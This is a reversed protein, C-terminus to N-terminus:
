SLLLEESLMRWDGLKSYDAMKILTRISIERMAQYNDWCWQVMETATQADVGAKAMMNTSTAIQQVRVMIEVRRHIALDLYTSRSILAQFHPAFKSNGNIMEDFNYNTIFAISGKFEFTNPIGNDELWKASSGYTIRRADSTDLAGKLLNLSVEDAFVDDCDDLLIVDGENCNQFLQQFLYLPTLKGKIHCFNGMEGAESAAKLEREFTFTKGVGPAGSVVLGRVNGAILGACMIDMVQFRRRIKADLFEIDVESVEMASSVASAVANQDNIIFGNERLHVYRPRGEMQVRAYGFFGDKAYGSSFESSTYAKPAAVIEFSGNVERNSYSGNTITITKM